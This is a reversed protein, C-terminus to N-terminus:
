DVGITQKTDQNGFKSSTVKNLALFQPWVLFRRAEPRHRVGIRVLQTSTGVDLSVRIM